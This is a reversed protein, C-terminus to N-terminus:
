VAGRVVLALGRKFGVEEVAIIAYTDGDYRVRMGTTVDDRYRIVFRAEAVAAQLQARQLDSFKPTEKKAPVSALVTLAETPQGYSDQATGVTLLEITHKLDGARM